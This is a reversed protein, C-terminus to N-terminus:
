NDSPGGGISTMQFVLAASLVAFLSIRLELLNILAGATKGIGNIHFAIMLAKTLGLGSILLNLLFSVFFFIFLTFLRKWFENKHVMQCFLFSILFLATFFCINILLGCKSDALLQSLLYFAQSCILYIFFLLMFQLMSITKNKM